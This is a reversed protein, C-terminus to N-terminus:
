RRDWRLPLMSARRVTFECECLGCRNLGISREDGEGCRPCDIIIARPLVKMDEGTRIATIQKTM